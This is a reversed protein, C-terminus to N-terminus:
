AEEKYRVGFGFLQKKRCVKEDLPLQRMLSDTRIRPLRTEMGREPRKKKSSRSAHAHDFHQVSKRGQRFGDQIAISYM